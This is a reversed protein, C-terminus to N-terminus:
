KMINPPAMSARCHVPFHGLHRALSPCVTAMGSANLQPEPGFILKQGDQPTFRSSGTGPARLGASDRFGILYCVLCGGGSTGDHALLRPFPTGAYLRAEAIAAKPCPRGAIGPSTVPPSHKATRRVGPLSFAIFATIERVPRHRMKVLTTSAAGACDGGGAMSAGAANSLPLLPM